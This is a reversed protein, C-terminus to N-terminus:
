KYSDASLIKIVAGHKIVFWNSNRVVGGLANKGRYDCGVVWGAKEDVSVPTCGQIKISDPDNAIKELYRQVEHYSGDWASPVPKPGFKAEHKQFIKEQQIEAETKPKSPAGQSQRSKTNDTSILGIIWIVLIVVFLSGCCGIRKKENAQAVVPKNPHGCNPCALAEKSIEKNCVSCSILSSM